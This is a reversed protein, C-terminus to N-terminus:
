ASERERVSVPGQPYPSGTGGREGAFPRTGPRPTPPTPHPPKCEHQELRPHSHCVAVLHLLSVSAGAVGGLAPDPLPASSAPSHPVTPSVPAAGGQGM